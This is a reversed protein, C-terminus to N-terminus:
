AENAANAGAVFAGAAYTIGDLILFKRNKCFEDSYGLYCRLGIGTVINTFGLIDRYPRPLNCKDATYGVWKHSLVHFLTPSFANAALACTQVITKVAENTTQQVAFNTLGLVAGTFVFNGLATLVVVGVNREGDAKIPQIPGVLILAGLALLFLKNKM